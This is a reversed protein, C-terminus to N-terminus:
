VRGSERYPQCGTALRAVQLQLASEGAARRGRYEPRASHTLDGLQNTDSLYPIYPFGSALRELGSVTWGGIPYDLLKSM